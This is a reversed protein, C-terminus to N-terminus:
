LGYVRKPNDYFWSRLTEVAADFDIMGRRIRAAFVRAYSERQLQLHGWVLEPRWQYDGGFAIIKSTPVIDLWEQLSSEFMHQSFLLAGCLNHMANPAFKGVLASQRPSPVGMHFLDFRIDPHKCITEYFNVTHTERYDPWCGCHVAVVTGKDRLFEFATEYLFGLMHLWEDGVLRGGAALEVVLRDATIRDCPQINWAITKFGVVGAALADALYKRVADALDGATHLRAGMRTEFAKLEAPWTIKPINVIARVLGGTESEKWDRANTIVREIRCKKALAEAYFGARRNANLSRGLAEFNDDTVDDMGFWEGLSFRLMRAPTGWRVANWYPKMRRWKEAPAISNDYISFAADLGAAQLDNVVYQMAWAWDCETEVFEKETRLHEHADIVPMKAMADFLKRELDDLVITDTFAM